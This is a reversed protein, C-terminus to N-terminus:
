LYFLRVGEYASSQEVYVVRIRKWVPPRYPKKTGGKENSGPVENWDHIYIRWIMGLLISSGIGGSFGMCLDGSAELTQSLKTRKNHAPNIVPELVKRFKLGVM